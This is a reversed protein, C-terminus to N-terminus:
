NGNSVITCIMGTGITVGGICCLGYDTLAIGLGVEFLGIIMLCLVCFLEFWDM